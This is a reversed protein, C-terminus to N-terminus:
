HGTDATGCCERVIHWVEGDSSALHARLAHGTRNYHGSTMSRYLGHSDDFPRTALDGRALQADDRTM